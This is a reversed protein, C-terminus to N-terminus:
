LKNNLPKQPYFAQISDSQQETESGIVNKSKKNRKKRRKKKKPADIVSDLARDTTKHTEYDVRHEVTREAAREARKGLKKFLQANASSSLMIIAVTVSIKIPNM